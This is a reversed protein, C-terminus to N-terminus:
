YIIFLGIFSILFVRSPVLLSYHLCFIPYILYFISHYFYIFCLPFFFFLILIFSFLRLSSHFLTLSGLMRIMPAGSSSSLFVMLFCKLFYYNFVVRFHHLFYDRLGLFGLADWVPCVWAFCGLVCM